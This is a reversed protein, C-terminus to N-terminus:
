ASALVERFFDVAAPATVEPHFASGAELARRSAELYFAEDEVLRRLTQWWPLVSELDPVALHNQLCPEPIDFLFGGGNLAEPLGGRSSSLVPIGCLQAELASRAFGERWYSPILLVKTREWISRVDEHSAMLWVNSLNTLDLGSEALKERDARGETVLFKLGPKERAAIRSLLYFLTVGKHPIPTMFTVFGSRWRERLRAPDRATEFDIREPAMITRLVRPEIGLTQRYHERLFNSPCLVIDGPHYFDASRYEANGLYFLIRCGLRRAHHQLRRTFPSGGYTIVAAPQERDLFRLWAAEFARQEEPTMKISQTSRTRFIHHRVGKREVVFIKGLAGPDNARPGLIGRLSVERRPDFLSATFSAAPIGAAACAELFSRVSIAAGSTRDLLCMSSFFVLKKQLTM